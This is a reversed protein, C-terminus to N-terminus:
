DLLKRVLNFVGHLVVMSVAWIAAQKGVTLLGESLTYSARNPLIDFMASIGAGAIAGTLGATLYEKTVSRKKYPTYGFNVHSNYNSNIQTSM